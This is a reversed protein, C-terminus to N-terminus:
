SSINIINYNNRFKCQVTNQTKATLCFQNYNLKLKRYTYVWITSQMHVYVNKKVGRKKTNEDNKFLKITKM